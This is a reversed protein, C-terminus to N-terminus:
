PRQGADFDEKKSGGCIELKKMGGERRGVVMRQLGHNLNIEDCKRNQKRPPPPCKKQKKM